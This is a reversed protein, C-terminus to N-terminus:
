AEHEDAAPHALPALGSGLALLTALLFSPMSVIQAVQPGVVDALLGAGLVGVSGTAWALGMAIGAAAAAADPVVEQAMVILPPLLAMNLFGACAGMVMASVSGPPLAVAAVHVPAAAFTLWALLRTRSVRDTLWGGTLTGAAQAGLYVTLSLAGLEEPGGVRAIAIPQLTLYTRQAFAAIASILFLSGLPGKLHGLVVFPSPPHKGYRVTAARNVVMWTVCGMVIAPIMAVWLGELGGISVFGVAIVPGLAYGVTGGFSFVSLRVGSGRGAATHAALSVGPPHFLASGLGGLVLLALLIGYTPAFGMLSLLVGTLVPGLAVFARRGFRDALYGVAPQPLSAAISLTMSLVAAAAISIDLRLMIRPLLPALFSTYADNVGHAVALVLAVRM